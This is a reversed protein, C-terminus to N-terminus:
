LSTLVIHFPRMDQLFPFASRVRMVEDVDIEGIALEATEGEEEDAIAVINKSFGTSFLEPLVAVDCAEQAAKRIFSEARAYNTQKAEVAINLQILAIKLM